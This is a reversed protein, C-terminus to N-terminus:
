ENEREEKKVADPEVGHVRLMAAEIAGELTPRYINNPSLFPSGPQYSGIEWGMSFRSITLSNQAHENLYNIKKLLTM